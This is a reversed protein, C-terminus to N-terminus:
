DVQPKEVLHGIVFAVGIVDFQRDLRRVARILQFGVPVDGAIARPGGGAFAHVQRELALGEVFMEQDCVYLHFGGGKAVMVRGLTPEPEGRGKVVALGGQQVFLGVVDVADVQLQPWIGVRLGLRGFLLDHRAQLLHQSVRRESQIPHADILEAARPQLLEDMVADDKHAVAGM